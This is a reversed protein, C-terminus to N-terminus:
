VNRSGLIKSVYHKKAKSYEIISLTTYKLFSVPSKKLVCKFIRFANKKDGIKIYALMVEVYNSAYVQKMFKKNNKYLSEFDLLFKEKLRELDEANPRNNVGNTDLLLLPEQIIFIDFYVFFRLLFEYDQHRIYSDDFGELKVYAERLMLISCTHPTSRNTLLEATFDDKKPLKVINGRSFWLCGVAGVRSNSSLLTAQKKIKDPLFYDDDDLFGIYEGESNSFGTNRAASGNMNKKHKIYKVRKDNAYKAMINETFKRHITGPNNDDIIIVEINTYSQNLCSNIARELTRNSKYTPIIISVKKM